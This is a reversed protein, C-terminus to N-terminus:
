GDFRIRFHAESCARRREGDITMPDFRWGEVAQAAIRDVAADGYSRRTKVSRSEVRGDRGVCFRIRVEGRGKRLGAATRRLKAPDPDPCVRCTLAEFKVPVSADSGAGGSGTGGGTPSCSPGVCEGTGVGTLGSGGGSACVGGPCRAPGPIKAHSGPEPITTPTDVPASESAQRPSDIDEELSERSAAAGAAAAPSDQEPPAPPPKAVEPPALLSIQTVDLASIEPSGVRDVQLRELSWIGALVASTASLAVLGAFVLRQTRQNDHPHLAAEFM